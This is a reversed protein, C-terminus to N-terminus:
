MHFWGQRGDYVHMYWGQRGDYVHMHGVLQEEQKDREVIEEESIIDGAWMMHPVGSGRDKTPGM